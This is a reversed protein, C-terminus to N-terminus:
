QLVHVGADLGVDLPKGEEEHGSTLKSCCCMEM